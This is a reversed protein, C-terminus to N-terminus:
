HRWERPVAAFSAERELDDLERQAVKLDARLNELKARARVDAHTNCAPVGFVQGNAAVRVVNRCYGVRTVPMGNVEEVAQRETEIQQQLKRIKENATRFRQKWESEARAAERATERTSVDVPAPAEDAAPAGDSSIVNLEEGQTQKVRTGKPAGQPSDAYHTVGDADVWTYIKPEQTQAWASGALLMVLPLSKM